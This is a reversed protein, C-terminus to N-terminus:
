RREEQLTRVAAGVDMENLPPVTVGPDFTVRVIGGRTLRSGAQPAQAVVTNPAKGSAPGPVEVLEYGAAAARAADLSSDIFNPVDGETSEAVKNFVPDIEDDKGNSLFYWVGVAVAALALIGLLIWLWLLNPPPKPVGSKLKATAVPGDAHDNDPDNVAVVRLRFPYDGAAVDAPVSIRITATQSEGPGFNRERDGEVSFWEAKSTGATQVSLRGGCPAGSKNKVNFVASGERIAKPDSSNVAEVDVSTPGDPIEFTPM